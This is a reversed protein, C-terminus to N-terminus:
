KCGTCYVSAYTSLGKRSAGHSGNACGNLPLLRSTKSQANRNAGRFSWWRGPRKHPRPVRGRQGPLWQGRRWSVRPESLGLASLLRGTGWEGRNWEFGTRSGGLAARPGPELGRLEVSMLVRRVGAQARPCRPDESLSGPLQCMHKKKSNQNWPQLKAQWRRHRSLWCSNAQSVERMLPVLCYGRSEAGSVMSDWTCAKRGECINERPSYNNVTNLPCPSLVKKSGLHEKHCFFSQPYKM